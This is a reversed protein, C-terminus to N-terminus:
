SGVWPLTGCQTSRRPIREYYAGLEGVEDEVSRGARYACQCVPQLKNLWDRLVAGRASSWLRHLVPLVAIPRIDGAERKTKPIAAIWAKALAQPWSYDHQEFKNVIKALDQFFQEPMTKIERVRWGDAGAVSRNRMRKAAEQLQQPTIDPMHFSECPLGELYDSIDAEPPLEAEMIHAWEQRILELIRRPHSTWGEGDKLLGLPPAIPKRLISCLDKLDAAALRERWAERRKRQEAKTVTVSLEACLQVLEESHEQLRPTWQGEPLLAHWEPHKDWITQMENWREDTGTRLRHKALGLLAKVEQEASKRQRREKPRDANHAEGLKGRGGQLKSDYVSRLYSEWKRSFCLLMADATGTQVEIDLLKSWRPAQQKQWQEEADVNGKEMRAEPPLDVRCQALREEAVLRCFIPVHPHTDADTISAAEQVRRLAVTNLLMHDIRRHETATSMAVSAPLSHKDMQLM